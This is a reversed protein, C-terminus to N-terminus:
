RAWMIPARAALVARSPIGIGGCAEKHQQAKALMPVQGGGQGSLHRRYLSDPSCGMGGALRCFRPGVADARELLGPEPKIIAEQVSTM